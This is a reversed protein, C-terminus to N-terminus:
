KNFAPRQPLNCVTETLNYFFQNFKTAADFDIPQTLDDQPRHYRVKYWQRFRREDETGPDYGFLFGIAPIGARLFPYHDARSMLSREPESDPRLEIGMSEGVTRATKGLSTDNIALATLIRLPFLPRLMDLNIDAVLQSLPVTPHAVFYNSGLLGKEEGTFVAFLLSRKLSRHDRHLNDAFQILLAVYAADDLTGNYLKDGEVPTGYGYGDLHASIVVYENKLVPDSGPLIALINPSSDSRQTFRTRVRLKAPIAFSPLPEKNGGAKLIAEAKQGSGELLTPFVEASLRLTLLEARRQTSPAEGIAVSRAYASPWRSPEITFYPDDVNLLGRAKGALANASRERASPLGARRNAFCVVIKGAINQMADKGCYGRFILSAEAEAPLDGGPNVDIQQLFVLPQENGNDRILTFTTAEPDVATEHLPVSQFFTADPGAPTLGVARFRDAVYKAARQYAPSGTDRGEMSDNSLLETTHWWSQTDSNHIEHDRPHQQAFSASTLLLPLSALISLNRSTTM